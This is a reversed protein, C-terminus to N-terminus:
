QIVRDRLRLSTVIESVIFDLGARSVTREKPPPRKRLEIQAVDLESSLYKLKGQQALAIDVAPRVSMFFSYTPIGLLAAERNMTGGGGIMVDVSSFLSLGDFVQDSVVFRSKGKLMTSLENRQSENQALVIISLGEKEALFKVVSEFLRSTEPRHYHATTAPPRLLVVIHEKQVGLEGLDILKVPRFEALYVEEKFGPYHRVKSLPVGCDKLAQDSIYSPFLLLRSLRNNISTFSHEYDDITVSPIGLLRAAIVASRSGHSVLVLPACSRIVKVLGQARWLTVLAKSFLSRGTRAGVSVFPLKWLNLLAITQGFDQATLFVGIDKKQLENVIPRFFLVHPSNCVDIWVLPKLQGEVDSM